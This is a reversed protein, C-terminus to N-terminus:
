WNKKKQADTSNPFNKPISEQQALHCHPWPIMLRKSQCEMLTKNKPFVVFMVVHLYDRQKKMKKQFSYIKNIEVKKKKLLVETPGDLFSKCYFSFIAFM